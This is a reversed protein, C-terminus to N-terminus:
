SELWLTVPGDNTLSVQMDAGFVGSEVRGQQGYQARAAQLMVEFLRQAQEPPAAGSILFVWVYDDIGDGKFHRGWRLDHLTNEPPWGLQRWLRDPRAPGRRLKVVILRSGARVLWCERAHGHTM